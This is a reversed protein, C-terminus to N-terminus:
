GVRSNTLRKKFFFVKSKRVRELVNKKLPLTKRVGMGVLSHLKLEKSHVLNGMGLYM